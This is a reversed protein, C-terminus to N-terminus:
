QGEAPAARVSVVIKVHHVDCRVIQDFERAVGPAVLARAPSGVAPMKNKLGCARARPLYPRHERISRIRALQGRLSLAFRGIPRGFLSLHPTRPPSRLM